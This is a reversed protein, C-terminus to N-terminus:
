QRTASLPRLSGPKDADIWGSTGPTDEDANCLMILGPVLPNCQLHGPRFPVTAIPRM